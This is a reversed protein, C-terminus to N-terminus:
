DNYEDETVTLLNKWDPKIGHEKCSKVYEQEAGDRTDEVGYDLDHEWIWKGINYRIPRKM